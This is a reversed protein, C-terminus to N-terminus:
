RGSQPIGGRSRQRFRVVGLIAAVFAVLVTGVIGFASPARRFAFQTPDERDVWCPTMIGVLPQGPDHSSLGAASGTAIIPELGDVHIRTAVAAVARTTARSTRSSGSTSRVSELFLQEDLIECQAPELTLPSFLGVISQLLLLLSISLGLTTLWQRRPRSAGHDGSNATELSRVTRKLLRGLVFAAVGLLLVPMFVSALRLGSSGSRWALPEYLHLVTDNEETRDGQDRYRVDISLFGDNQPRTIVELDLRGQAHPPLSLPPWRITQHTEVRLPNEVRGGHSADVFLAANDLRAEVRLVRETTSDNNIVILVSAVEGRYAPSTALMATSPGLFVDPGARFVLWDTSPAPLPENETSAGHALLLQKLSPDQRRETAHDMVRWGDLSNANPDAGAELLLRAREIDRALMLPTRGEEDRADPDLGADLLLELIGNDQADFLLPEGFPDLPVPELGRSAIREVRDRDDEYMADELRDSRMELLSKGIATKGLLTAPAAAALTMLSGVSLLLGFLLSGLASPKTFARWASALVVTIGLSGLGAGVLTLATLPGIDVFGRLYLAWVVCLAAFLLTTLWCGLSRRRARPPSDIRAETAHM